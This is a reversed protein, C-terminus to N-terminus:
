GLYGLAVPRAGKLGGVIEFSFRQTFPLGSWWFCRWQLSMSSAPPHVPSGAAGPLELFHCQSGVAGAWRKLGEGDPRRLGVYGQVALLPVDQEMGSVAGRGPDALRMAERVVTIFGDGEGNWSGVSSCICAARRFLAKKMTVAATIMALPDAELSSEELCVDDPEVKM